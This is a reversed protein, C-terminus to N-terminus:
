RALGYMTYGLSYASSVGLTNILSDNCFAVTSMSPARHFLDSRVGIFFSRLSRHPCRAAKTTGDLGPSANGLKQSMNWVAWITFAILAAALMLQAKYDAWITLFIEWPHNFHEFFLRNPRVGFRDVFSPTALEM